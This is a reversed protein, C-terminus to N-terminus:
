LDEPDIPMMVTLKPKSSEAVKIRLQASWYASVAARQETTWLKRPFHGDLTGRDCERREAEDWKVLERLTAGDIKVDLPDSIKCDSYPVPCWFDSQKQKQSTVGPKIYEYARNQM